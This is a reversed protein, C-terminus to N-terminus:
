NIVQALEVNDFKTMNYGERMQVLVSHLVIELQNILYYIWNFVWYSFVKSQYIEIKDLVFM